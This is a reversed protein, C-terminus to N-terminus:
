KMAQPENEARYFDAPSRLNTLEAILELLNAILIRPYSLTKFHNCKYISECDRLLLRCPVWSPFLLVKLVMPM